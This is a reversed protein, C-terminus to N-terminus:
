PPLFSVFVLGGLLQLLKRHHPPVFLLFTGVTTAHSSSLYPPSTSLLINSLRFPLWKTQLRMLFWFQIQASSNTQRPSGEAGIIEIM